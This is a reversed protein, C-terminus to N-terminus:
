GGWIVLTRILHGVFIALKRKCTKHVSFLACRKTDRIMRADTRELSLRATLSAINMSLLLRHYAHTNVAAPASRTVLECNVFSHLLCAWSKSCTQFAQDTMCQHLGHAFLISPITEKRISTPLCNKPTHEHTMHHAVYVFCNKVYVLIKGVFPQTITSM